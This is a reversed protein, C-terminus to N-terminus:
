KFLDDLNKMVSQFDIDDRTVNNLAHVIFTEPPKVKHVSIYHQLSRPWTFKGDCVNSSSILADCFLCFSKEKREVIVDGHQGVYSAVLQAEDNDWDEDVYDKPLVYNWYGLHVKNNYIEDYIYM